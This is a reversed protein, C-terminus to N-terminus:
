FPIHHVRVSLLLQKVIDHHAANELARRRVQPKLQAAWYAVDSCAKVKLSGDADLLEDASTAREKYKGQTMEPANYGDSNMLFTFM